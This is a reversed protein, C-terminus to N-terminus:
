KGHLEDYLHKMRDMVLKMCKGCGPNKKTGHIRNYLNYVWKWEDPTIGYKGYLDKIPILEEPRWLPENLTIEGSKECKECKEETTM